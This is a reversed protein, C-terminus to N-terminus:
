KQTFRKRGILGAAGLGVAMLAMSSPEPTASTPNYAYTVAANAAASTSFSAILNGPGSASSNGEGKVNLSITGGGLASFLALDSAGTFIASNSGSATINNRTLGSTGGFDLIGDYASVADSFTTGPLTILLTSLDPRQLTLKAGVSSNVTSASSDQSEFKETALINGGLTFSISTLTGLSTDFKPLILSNNFTTPTMAVSNNYSVTAASASGVLLASAFLLQFTKTMALSPYDGYQVDDIM